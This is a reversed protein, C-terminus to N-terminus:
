EADGRLAAYYHDRLTEYEDFDIAGFDRAASLVGCIYDYCHSFGYGSCVERELREQTMTPLKALIENIM